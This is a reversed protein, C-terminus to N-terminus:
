NLTKTVKSKKFITTVLPIDDKSPKVKKTTSVSIINSVIQSLKNKNILNCNNQLSFEDEVQFLSSNSDFM